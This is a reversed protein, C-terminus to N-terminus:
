ITKKPLVHSPCKNSDNIIVGDLGYDGVQKINSEGGFKNIIFREFEVPPYNRIINYDYKSTEISFEPCLLGCNEIRSRSVAIAQVSEDIGIFKRNLKCAAVLTTGGGCFADLVVDGENSSAKIIRKLLDVPKQTPYGINNDTGKRYRACIAIDEWWDEPIKGKSYDVGEKWQAKGQPHPKGGAYEVRVSDLNATYNKSKAYWFITDHKRPFARKSNSASTYCWAINNVFVGGLKDLIWARIYADAHWDCHVFISGTPKLLRWIEDIREKL